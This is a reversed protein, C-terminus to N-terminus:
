RDSVPGIECFAETPLPDLLAAVRRANIEDEHKSCREISEARFDLDEAYRQRQLERLRETAAENAEFALYMGAVLFVSFVIVAGSAALIDPTWANNEKKLKVALVAGGVGTLVAPLLAAVVTADAGTQGTLVGAAAGLFAPASIVLATHRSRVVRHWTTLRLRALQDRSIRM